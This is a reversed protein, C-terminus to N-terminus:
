RHPPRPSSTKGTGGSTMEEPAIRGRELALIWQNLSVSEREVEHKASKSKRTVSRM